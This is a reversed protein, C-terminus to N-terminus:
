GELELTSTQIRDFSMEIMEGDCSLLLGEDRVLFLLAKFFKGFKKDKKILIVRIQKGLVKKFHERSKLPRYMGPSSVERTINKLFSEDGEFINMLVRDVRVCDEILATNTKENLIMLRILASSKEYEFDYLSFNEREIVLRCQEKFQTLSRMIM